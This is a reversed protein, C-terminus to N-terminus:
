CNDVIVSVLEKCKKKIKGKKENGNGNRGDLWGGPFLSFPSPPLILDM